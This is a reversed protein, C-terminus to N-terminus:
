DNGVIKNEKQKMACYAMFKRVKDAPVVELLDQM